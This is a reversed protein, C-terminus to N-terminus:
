HFTTCMSTDVLCREIGERVLKDSVGFPRRTKIDGREEGMETQRDTQRERETDTQTDTHRHTQTDTHTDTQRDRERERKDEIVDIPGYYRLPM